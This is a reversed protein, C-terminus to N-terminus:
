WRGISKLAVDQAKAPRAVRPVYVRDYHAKCWATEKHQPEGCCVYPHEHVIFRCQNHEVDVFPVGVIGCENMAPVAITKEIRKYVEKGEISYKQVSSITVKQTAKKVAELPAQEDTTDGRVIKARPPRAGMVIPFEPYKYANKRVLSIVSNKTLAFMAGVKERTLNTNKSVAEIVSKKFEESHPAQAM